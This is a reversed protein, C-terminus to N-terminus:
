YRKLSIDPFMATQRPVEPDAQLHPQQPRITDNVAFEAFGPKSVTRNVVILVFRKSGCGAATAFSRM